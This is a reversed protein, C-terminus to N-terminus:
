SHHNLMLAGITWDVSHNKNPYNMMQNEDIGMGDVISSYFYSAALCQRYLYPDTYKQVLNGWGQHCSQADAQERFAHLNFHEQPFSYPPTTVAYRIAGLTVWNLSDQQKLVAKADSFRSLIALSANSELSQICQTTDGDGFQGNGLPYNQSFCYGVNSVNKEVENIGLGLYSKTWVYYKQGHLFIESIDVTPLQKSLEESVPINVQYSAGGVELVGKKQTQTDNVAIWAFVGEEKGSITRIDKLNWYSNSSYWSKVAEYRRLQESDTLLRMGATGYFYVPMPVTQNEPILSSLYSQIQEFPITSLGPEVKHTYLVKYDNSYIYFRSGSSGADVIAYCASDQCNKMWNSSSHANLAPSFSYLLAFFGFLIQIRKVM